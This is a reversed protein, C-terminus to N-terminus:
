GVYIRLFKPFGVLTDTWGSAASAALKISFSIEEFGILIKSINAKAIKIRSKM